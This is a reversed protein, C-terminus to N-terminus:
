IIGRQKLDNMTWNEAGMYGFNWYRANEGEYEEIEYDNNELIRRLTSQIKSTTRSYKKTNLRAKKDNRNVTCILTSYNYLYIGDQLLHCYCNVALPSENNTVYNRMFDYNTM